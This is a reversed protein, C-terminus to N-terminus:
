KNYFDYFDQEAKSPKKRGQQRGGQQRAGQQRSQPIPQQPISKKVEKYAGAATFAGFLLGLPGFLTAALYVAYTSVTWGLANTMIQIPKRNWFSGMMSNEQKPTVQKSGSFLNKMRDVFGYGKLTEGEQEPADPISKKYEIEGVRIIVLDKFYKFLVSYRERTKLALERRARGQALSESDISFSQLHKFKYIKSLDFIELVCGDRVKDQIAFPLSTLFEEDFTPKYAIDNIVLTGEETFRLSTLADLSGLMNEIDKLIFATMERLSCITNVTGTGRTKFPNSSQPIELKETYERIPEVQRHVGRYPQSQEAQGRKPEQANDGKPTNTYFKNTQQSQKQEQEKYDFLDIEEEFHEPEEGKIGLVRATAEEFESDSIIGIDKLVAFIVNNASGVGYTYRDFLQNRLGYKVIADLEYMGEFQSNLLRLAEEKGEDPIFMSRILETSSGQGAYFSGQKMIPHPNESTGYKEEYKIVEINEKVGFYEYREKPMDGFINYKFSGRKESTVIKKPIDQGCLFWMFGSTRTLNAGGTIKQMIAKAVPDNETNVAFTNMEDIFIAIRPLRTIGEVNANNKNFEKVDKYGSKKLIDQIVEYLTSVFIMGAVEQSIPQAFNVPEGKKNIYKISAQDQIVEGGFSYFPIGLKQMTPRWLNPLEQKADMVLAAGNGYDGQLALFQIILSDILASKGSGAAGCILGSTQQQGSCNFNEIKLSNPKVGVVIKNGLPLNKFSGFPNGQVAQGTAAKLYDMLLWNSGRFDMLDKVLSLSICNYETDVGYIKMGKIQPSEYISSQFVKGNARDRNSFLSCITDVTTGKFIFDELNVPLKILITYSLDTEQVFLRFMLDEDVTFVKKTFIDANKIDTIGKSKLLTENFECSKYRYGSQSNPQETCFSKLWNLVKTYVETNSGIKSKDTIHKFGMSMLQRIYEQKASEETKAKEESEQKAQERLAKLDALRRQEQMYFYHSLSCDQAPEANEKGKEPKYKGDLKYEVANLEIHKLLGLENKEPEYKAVLQVQVRDGKFQELVSKETNSKLLNKTVPQEILGIGQLRKFSTQVQLLNKAFVQLRGLERQLEEPEFDAVSLYIEELNSFKLGDVVSDIMGKEAKLSEVFEQQNRPGKKFQYFEIKKSNSPTTVYYGVLVCNAGFVLFRINNPTFIKKNVVSNDLKGTECFANSHTVLNYFERYKTLM